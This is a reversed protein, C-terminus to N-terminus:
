IVLNNAKTKVIYIHTYIYADHSSSIVNTVIQHKRLANSSLILFHLLDVYQVVNGNGIGVPRPNHSVFKLVNQNQYKIVYQLVIGNRISVLRPNHTVGRIVHYHKHSSKLNYLMVKIPLSILMILLLHLPLSSLLLNLISLLRDSTQVVILMPTILMLIMMVVLRGMGNVDM